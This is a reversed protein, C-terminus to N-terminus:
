GKGLSFCTGENGEDNGVRCLVSGLQAEDDGGCECRWRGGGVCVGVCGM